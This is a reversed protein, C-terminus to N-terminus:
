QRGQAVAYLTDGWCLPEAVRRLVGSAKDLLWTTARGPRINWLDPPLQRLNLSGHSFVSVVEFGTAQLLSRIGTPTIHHYHGWRSFDFFPWRTGYFAAKASRYNVTSLVLWGGHNLRERLRHFTPQPDDIHEVVDWLTIIDYPDDNTLLFFDNTDFLRGRLRQRAAQIADASIDSGTVDWGISEMLTLFDGPGCGVDLLRRGSTSLQVLYDRRWALTANFHAQSIVELSKQYYDATYDLNTKTLLRASGCARCRFWGTSTRLPILLRAGCLACALDSNTQDM